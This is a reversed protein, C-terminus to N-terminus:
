RLSFQFLMRLAFANGSFAPPQTSRTCYVQGCRTKSVQLALKRHSNSHQTSNSNRPLRTYKLLIPRVILWNVTRFGYLLFLQHCTLQYSVRTHRHIMMVTFTRDSQLRKVSVLANHIRTHHYKIVIGGTYLKKKTRGREYRSATSDERCIACLAMCLSHIM